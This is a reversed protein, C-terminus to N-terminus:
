EESEKLHLKKLEKQALNAKDIYSDLQNSCQPCLGAGLMVQGCATCGSCDDPVLGGYSSHANLARELYVLHSREDANLAAWWEKTRKAM